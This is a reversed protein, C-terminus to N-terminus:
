KPIKEIQVLRSYINFLFQISKETWKQAVEDNQKPKHKTRLIKGEGMTIKTKEKKTSEVGNKM